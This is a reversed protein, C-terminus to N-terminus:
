STVIKLLYQPLDSIHMMESLTTNRSRLQFLGNQLCQDRLLLCYPVAISDLHHLQKALSRGGNRKSCDLVPLNAKRLVNCLHKALDRLEPMLAPNDSLCVIGCKFPTLKRHIRVSADGGSEFADLVIQLTAVEVCQRLRLMSPRIRKSSTRGVKIRFDGLDEELAAADTPFLELQELTLEEGGLRSIGCVTRRLVRSRNEGALQEVTRIDIRPRRLTPCSETANRATTSRPCRVRRNVRRLDTSTGIVTRKGPDRISHRNRGKNEYWEGNSRHKDKKSSSSSGDSCRCGLPQKSM